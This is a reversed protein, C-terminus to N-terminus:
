FRKGVAVGITWSDYISEKMDYVLGPSLDWNNSIEFELEIGARIVYYNAHPEFEKGFGLVFGIHHTPKYIGVLSLIMPRTREVLLGDDTEISYTSIEMDNHSGIAWKENLWFEYNFGWSPVILNTQNGSGSVGKPIHTHGLVLAVRHRFRKEDNGGHTEETQALVNQGQFLFLFLGLFVWIRMSNRKISLM